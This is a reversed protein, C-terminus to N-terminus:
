LELDMLIHMAFLRVWEILMFKLPTIELVPEEPDEELQIEPLVEISASSSDSEAVHLVSRSSSGKSPNTEM